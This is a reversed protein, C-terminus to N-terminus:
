AAGVFAYVSATPRREISGHPAQLGVSSAGPSRTQAEYFIACSCVLMGSDTDTLFPVALAAPASVTPMRTVETGEIGNHAILLDDVNLLLLVGPQLHLNPDM